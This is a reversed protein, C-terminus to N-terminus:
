SIRCVTALTITITVISNRHVTHSLFSSYLSLCLLCFTHDSLLNAEVTFPFSNTKHELKSAWFCTCQQKSSLTVRLWSLAVTVKKRVTLMNNEKKCWIYNETWLWLTTPTPLHCIHFCGATWLTSGPAVPSAAPLQPCQILPILSCSVSSPDLELSYLICM